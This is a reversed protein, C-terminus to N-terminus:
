EYEKTCTIPGGLKRPFQVKSNVRTRENTRGDTILNRPFRENSKESIKCSTVVVWPLFHLMRPNKIFIRMERRPPCFPDFIALFAIKPLYSKIWENSKESIKCSTVVVWPFFHLMRPNKIFIRMERRPPEFPTLFPRFHQKPCIVKSGNM